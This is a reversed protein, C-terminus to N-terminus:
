AYISDLEGIVGRLPHDDKSGVIRAGWDALSPECGLPAFGIRAAKLMALDNQNDGIAYIHERGVSCMDAVRLMSSGKNCGKTTMELLYTNSFVVEYLGSFRENILTAVRELIHHEQQFIVKVWPLPMSGIPCEIYSLRVKEMHLRTVTNPNHVYIDDGNYAEFAVEPVASVLEACDARVRELLQSRYLTVENSFDYIIAGNSLVVPANIPVLHASHRFAPAARGTNVTFFGGNDVFFKLADYNEPSVEGATNTLTDDFDSCLLVGDFKGM